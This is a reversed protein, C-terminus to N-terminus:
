FNELIASVVDRSVDKSLRAMAAGSEDFYQSNSSVSLEYRQHVQLSPRSFIIKGTSREVLSIQLVANVQLGSTRGTAQDILTPYAIYNVVSGRLVADAQTPDNVIQYHTRTILERSIAEPLLDTLKYRVTSNTFPPVAITHVTKPVLDAQGAVRYGCSGLALCVITLGTGPRNWISV